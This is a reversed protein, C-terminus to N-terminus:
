GGTHTADMIALCGRLWAELESRTMEIWVVTDVCDTTTAKMYLKVEFRGGELRYAQLESGHADRLEVGVRTM